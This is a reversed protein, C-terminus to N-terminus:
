KTNLINKVRNLKMLYSLFTLTVLNLEKLTEDINKTKHTIDNDLLM